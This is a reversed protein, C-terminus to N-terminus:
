KYRWQYGKCTKRKGLCVASIASKGVGVAMGAETCGYYEAVVDGKSIQQVIKTKKNDKGFRGASPGIRGLVRYAHLNNGAVTCWELNEVRNDDRIGNKHNVVPLNNYNPLFTEAVLRHIFKNLIRNKGIRLACRLYGGKDYQLKLICMPYEKSRSGFKCVRPLSRLRGLNSIEHTKEFGVVPKWVEIM